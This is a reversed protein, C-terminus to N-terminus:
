FLHSVTYVYHNNVLHSYLNTWGIHEIPEGKKKCVNFPLPCIDGHINTKNDVPNPITAVDVMINVVAIQFNSNVGIKM